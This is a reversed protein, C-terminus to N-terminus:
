HPKEKDFVINIDLLQVAYTEIIVIIIYNSKEVGVKKSLCYTALKM